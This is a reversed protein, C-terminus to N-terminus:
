EISIGLINASQIICDTSYDDIINIIIDKFSSYTNDVSSTNKYLKFFDIIREPKPTPVTPIDNENYKSTRLFFQIQERKAILEKNDPYHKSELDEIKDFLSLLLDKLEQDSNILNDVTSEQILENFVFM